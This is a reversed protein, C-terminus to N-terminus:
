LVEDMVLVMEDPLTITARDFYEAVRIQPHLYVFLQYLYDKTRQSVGSEPPKAKIYQDVISWAQEVTISVM